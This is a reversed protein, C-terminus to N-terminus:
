INELVSIIDILSQKNFVSPVKISIDRYILVIPSEVTQARQNNNVKIEVFSSDQIKKRNKYFATYHIGKNKCFEGISKGSQEQEQLLAGWDRIQRKRM